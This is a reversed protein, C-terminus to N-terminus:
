ATTSEVEVHDTHIQKEFKLDDLIEVGALGLSENIRMMRLCDAEAISNKDGGFFVDL